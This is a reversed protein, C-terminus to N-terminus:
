DVIEVDYIEGKIFEENCGVKNPFDEILEAWSYDDFNEDRVTDLFNWITHLEEKTMKILPKKAVLEM